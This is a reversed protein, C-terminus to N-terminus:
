LDELLCSILDADEQVDALWINVAIKLERRHKDVDKMKFLKEASKQLKTNKAANKLSLM